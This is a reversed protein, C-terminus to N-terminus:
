GGKIPVSGPQPMPMSGHGFMMPQQAAMTEQMKKIESAKETMQAILEETARPPTESDVLQENQPKSATNPDKVSYECYGRLANFCDELRSDFLLLQERLIVIQKTVEVPNSRADRSLEQIKLSLSNAPETMNKFEDRVRNPVEELDVTFSMKVNM